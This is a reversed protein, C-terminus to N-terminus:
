PQRPQQQITNAFIEKSGRLVRGTVSGKGNFPIAYKYTFTVQIKQITNNAEYSLEQANIAIPYAEVLTTSYNANYGGSRDTQEPYSYIDIDLAYEDIYNFNNTEPDMVLYMWTEFIYRELMESGCMFTMTIDQYEPKHPIKFSPGYHRNQELQFQYSPLETRDCYMM